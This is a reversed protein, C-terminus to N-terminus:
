REKRQGSLGLNYAQTTISKIGRNLSEAIERVPKRGYDRRLTAIEEFVWPRPYPVGTQPNKGTLPRAFDRNMQDWEEQTFRITEEHTVSRM